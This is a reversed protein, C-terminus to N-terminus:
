PGPESTLSTDRGRAKNQHNRSIYNNTFSNQMSNHIPFNSSNNKQNILLFVGFSKHSTQQM